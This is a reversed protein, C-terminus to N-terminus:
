QTFSLVERAKITTIRKQEENMGFLYENLQTAANIGSVGNTELARVRDETDFLVIKMVPRIYQVMTM